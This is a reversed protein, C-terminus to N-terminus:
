SHRAVLLVRNSSDVTGVAICSTRSWCSVGNLSLCDGFSCSGLPTPQVIWRKGILREALGSFLRNGVAICATSTTCSISDLVNEQFPNRMRTLTWSRGDWRETFATSLFTISEGVAVCAIASTCSVANLGEDLGGAPGPPVTPTSQITWRRGDWRAAFPANLYDHEGNQFRTPVSGVVTCARAASCSVSKAVAARPTRLLSWRIGNWRIATWPTDQGHGVSLCARNSPCSVSVLAGAAVPVHQVTWRSGQFREVIPNTEGGGVATCIALSSCSVAALAGFRPGPVPQVMWRGGEYREVLPAVGGANDEVGGVAVCIRPKPCSVGNLESGTAGTPVPASQPIWSTPHAQSAGAFWAASAVCAVVTRRLLKTGVRGGRHDLSGACRGPHATAQSPNFASGAGFL